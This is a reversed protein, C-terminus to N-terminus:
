CIRIMDTQRNCMITGCDETGLVMVENKADQQRFNEVSTEDLWSLESTADLSPHSNKDRQKPTPIQCLCAPM